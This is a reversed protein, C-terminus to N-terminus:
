PWMELPLGEQVWEASLNTLAMTAASNIAEGIANGILNGLVPTIGGILPSAVAGVASGVLGTLLQGVQRPEDPTAVQQRIIYDQQNHYQNQHYPASHTQLVTNVLLVFLVTWQNIRSSMNVSQRTIPLQHHPLPPLAYKHVLHRQPAVLVWTM